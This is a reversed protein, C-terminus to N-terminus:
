FPIVMFVGIFGADTNRKTNIREIRILNHTKSIIRTEPGDMNGVKVSPVM